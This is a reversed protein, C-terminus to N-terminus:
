RVRQSALMSLAAPRREVTCLNNDAPRQGFRLSDGSISVLDFDQGCQSIPQQGLGGCGSASIDRASDVVFPGPCAAAGNLFAVAGDNHATVTKRTFRFVGEYAGPVAASAAGLEYPGDIHVTVSRTACTPEAYTVYDLRWEGRTFEFDLSFGGGQGNPTCANRWRGTLDLASSSDGSSIADSRISSGDATNNSSAGCASLALSLSFFASRATLQTVISVGESRPTPGRYGHGQTLSPASAM